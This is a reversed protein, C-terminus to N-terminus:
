LAIRVRYFDCTRIRHRGNLLGRCPHTDLGKRACNKALQVADGVEEGAGVPLEGFLFTPTLFAWTYRSPTIVRCDM